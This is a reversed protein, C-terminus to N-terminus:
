ASGKTFMKKYFFGCMGRAAARTALRGECVFVYVRVCARVCACACGCVGRARRLESRALKERVFEFMARGWCGFIYIFFCRVRAAARRRAVSKRVFERRLAERAGLVGAVVVGV